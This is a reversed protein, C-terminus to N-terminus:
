NFYLGEQQVKAILADHERKAMYTRVLSYISFSLLIFSLARTAPKISKYVSPSQRIQFASARKPNKVAKFLIGFFYATVLNSLHRVQKKEIKDIKKCVRKMQSCPFCFNEHAPQVSKSRKFIKLVVATTCVATALYICGKAAKGFSNKKILDASLTLTTFLASSFSHSVAKMTITKWPAVASLQQKTFCEQCLKSVKIKDSESQYSKFENWKHCSPIMAFRQFGETTQYAACPM